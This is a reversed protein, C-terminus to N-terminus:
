RDGFGVVEITQRGPVWIDKLSLNRFFDVTESIWV